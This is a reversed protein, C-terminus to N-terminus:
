AVTRAAQVLTAAGTLIRLSKRVEGRASRLEFSKAVFITWTVLSAFVLGIIVAKVVIDANLFMGWPTLDQPLLARSISPEGPQPEAIGSAANLPPAPTTAPALVAPSPAAAGPAASAPAALPAPASSAPAVKDPAASQVAAPAAPALDNQAFAAQSYAGALVAAACFMAVRAHRTSIRFQPLMRVQHFSRAHHNNNM